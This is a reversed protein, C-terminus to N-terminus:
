PIFFGIFWILAASILNWKLMQYAKRVKEFKHTAIKSNVYIQAILDEKYDEGNQIAKEIASYFEDFNKFKSSIHNWFIRSKYDPNIRDETSLDPLLTRSFLIFFYIEFVFFAIIAFIFICSLFNTNKLIYPVSKNIQKIVAAILVLHVGLLIHIKIDARQISEQIYNLQQWLIESKDKMNM